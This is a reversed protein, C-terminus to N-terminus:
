MLLCEKGLPLKESGAGHCMICNNNFIVKAEVIDRSVNSEESPSEDEKNGNADEEDNGKCVAFLPLALSLMLLVLWKKNM